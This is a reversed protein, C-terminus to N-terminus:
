PAPWLQEDLWGSLLLTFDRFNVLRSDPSEEDHINAVSPVPVYLQNDEPTADALYAIEAESLASSYIRVDDLDGDFYGTANPRGNFETAESGIGLFGYRITGTGFTSGGHVPKESGGDVYITLTGNDFVGAVHHWQGDDVRRTSGYDVQGSSTMVSWGVLGPGGAEGALQLRWYENRDFSAIHLNATSSTRLWACVSVQTYESGTYNVNQIAVYDDVGDLSIAQDFVGPIYAPGGKEVGYNNNGSSDTANGDFKYYVVLSAPDPAVTAATSDSQLWDAAMLELDLWNVLCDNNLDASPKLLWPICRPRYLRIDDFYLKGSDGAQPNTRDGLGIALSDVDTLNVGQDAFEKLDINWETWNEIRVAEPDEHYVV